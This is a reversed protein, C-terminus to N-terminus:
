PHFILSHNNAPMPVVERLSLGVRAAAAELDSLDRVGWSPDHARLSADFAENSPATFRGQFRYPGYTYLIGGASLVGVAGRLLALAASWPAVHLLNICVVADVPAIPWPQEDVDLRVPPRLNPLAADAVHAAISALADADVDSPQWTIGPLARAMHVAHQGTGSAIELVVGGAPLVRELVSRIPEANRQAAPAHRRADTTHSV